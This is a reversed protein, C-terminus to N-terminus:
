KTGGTAHGTVTVYSLDNYAEISGKRRNRKLKGEVFIRIGSGSPSFETYSNMMQIVQIAQDNIRGDRNVCDDLDLATFPDKGTLVFGIGDFGGESNEYTAIVKSFDSWHAQNTKDAKNGNIQYPVKTWKTGNWEARWNVWQPYSRLLEPINAPLVKLYIPKGPPLDICNNM